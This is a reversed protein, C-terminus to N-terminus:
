TRRPRRRPVGDSDVRVASSRCTEIINQRKSSSTIKHFNLLHPGLNDSRKPPRMRCQPMPCKLGANKNHRPSTRLHRQYNSNADQPTGSFEISCARCCVVPTTTPNSSDPTTPSMSTQSITTPSTNNSSVGVTYLSGTSKWSMSSNPASDLSDAGSSTSSRLTPSDHTPHERRVLAVLSPNPNGSSDSSRKGDLVESIKLMRDLDDVYHDNRWDLRWDEGSFLMAEDCQSIISAHFDEFVEPSETM